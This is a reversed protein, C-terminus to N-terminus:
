SIRTAELRGLHGAAITFTVATGVDIARSGDSIATCHFLYEAGNAATILGLGAPADFSAVTGTAEGYDATQLV